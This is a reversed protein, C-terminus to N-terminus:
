PTSRAAEALAAALEEPKWENGDFQRHIRGRPDLVVTRLNHSFGGGERTVRLDLGPALNRLADTSLVGFRWRDASAGRERRAYAALVPPTDHEPDFSFSLFQWNTPGGNGQLLKRSERFQRCMRPCFEPLPCRSFVFTLAVASGRFDSLRGPKGSEDLFVTEPLPDGPRLERRAGAAAPAGTAAPEPPKGHRLVRLNEIWHEEATATLRFEVVDGPQLGRLEEPRRATFSMTMRPMYGAIAEHRIIVTRGDAPLERVLGQVTFTRILNTRGEAADPVPPEGLVAFGLWLLWLGSVFRSM